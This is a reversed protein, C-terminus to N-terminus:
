KRDLVREPNGIRLPATAKLMKDIKKEGEKFSDESVNQEELPAEQTEAQPQATDTVPASEPAAVVPAPKKSGGKYFHYGAFIAVAVLALFIIGGFKGDSTETGVTQSPSPHGAKRRQSKIYQAVVIHCHPCEIATDAIEKKCRPCEM